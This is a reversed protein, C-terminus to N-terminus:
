KEGHTGYIRGKKEGRLGERAGIKEGSWPLCVLAFRKFCVVGTRMLIHHSEKPPFRGLPIRLDGGASPKRRKKGQIPYNEKKM